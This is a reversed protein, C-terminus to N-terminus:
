AKGRLQESLNKVQDEGPFIRLMERYVMRVKREAHKSNLKKASALAAEWYRIVEQMDHTDGTLSAEAMYLITEIRMGETLIEQFAPAIKLSKADIVQSYSEMAQGTQGIYGQAFGRELLATPEDFKMGYLITNGIKQEGAKKIAFDPDIFNRAQVVSLTSYTGGYICIPLPDRHRELVARAEEAILLAAEDQDQYLHAWALKSLASLYLGIHGFNRTIEVADQAFLVTSADGVCGWGLNTKLVAYHSALEQAQERYKSSSKIIEKLEALYRSVSRFVLFKERRNPSTSLDECAVLAAGVQQLFLDHKSASLTYVHEEALSLPPTFPLLALSTVAQRRTMATSLESQMNMAEFEEIIGAYKKCRDEHVPEDMISCLQLFLTASIAQHIEELDLDAEEPLIASSQKGRSPLLGLEEISQGFLSSLQQRYYPTPLVGRTEWRFYSTVGCKIM